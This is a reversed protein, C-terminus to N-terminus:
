FNEEFTSSYLAVQWGVSDPVCHSLHCKPTGGRKPLSKKLYFNCVVAISLRIPSEMSNPSSLSPSRCDVISSKM